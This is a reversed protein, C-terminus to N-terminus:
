EFKIYRNAINQHSSARYECFIIIYKYFNMLFLQEVIRAAQRDIKYEM